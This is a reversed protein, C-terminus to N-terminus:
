CPLVTDGTTFVSVIYTPAVLLCMAGGVGPVSVIRMVHLPCALLADCGLTSVSFMACCGCLVMACLAYLLVLVLVGRSLSMVLAYFGWLAGGESAGMGSICGLHVCQHHPGVVVCFPQFHQGIVIFYM